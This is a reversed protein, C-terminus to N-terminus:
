LKPTPPPERTQKTKLAKVVLEFQEEFKANNKKWGKFNAALRSTVQSKWGWEFDDRFLHGDLNLPILVLKKEDATSLNREKELATTVENDVWWSNLSEKSACLLVKDWVRIGQDIREHIKDGPLLQKEDLWCRIGRAQLDNHLRRAFSKDSHSYSIFCSYFDIASDAFLSPIYSIFEEPLGCGRLFVEPIKGNSKALTHVGLESPGLHKVEKLGITASLNVFSFVTGCCVCRNLIAGSLNTGSLNANTLEADSLDTDSLDADCLDAGLLIARLLNAGLLDAERLDFSYDHTRQWEAIAKAGQKVVEVHEPNAM